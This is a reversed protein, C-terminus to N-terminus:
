SNKERDEESKADLKLVFNAVKSIIDPDVNRRLKTKDGIDFLPEGGKM